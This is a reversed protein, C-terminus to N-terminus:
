NDKKNDKLIQSIKQINADRNKFYKHEYVKGIVILIIEWAGIILLGYAAVKFANSESLCIISVISTTVYALGIIYTLISLVFAPLYTGENPEELTPGYLSENKRDNPFYLPIKKTIVKKKMSYNLNSDIEKLNYMFCSFIGVLGMFMMIITQAM